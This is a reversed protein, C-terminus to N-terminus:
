IVWALIQFHNWIESHVCSNSRSYFNLHESHFDPERYKYNDFYLLIILNLHLSFDEIANNVKDIFLGILGNVRSQEFSCVLWVMLVHNNTLSCVLWVMLVHNNTLSCVLWIMLVHNNKKFVIPWNKPKPKAEETDNHCSFVM